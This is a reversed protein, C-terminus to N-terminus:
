DPRPPLAWVADGGVGYFRRGPAAQVHWGGTFEGFAPLIAQQGEHVFCPLRVSDRGKGHLSCAPHMHGALVFHTPHQQPHHCCAFPGMLHPEDVIAIRLSAPPDGARSDHNGRVLTFAMAAHRARWADLAALLSPTRAQAAHLFDGLFVVAEAGQGLILGDLRALNELTTGGPVPQGLARFTAAKGLHLDAIFLTRAAPWWLARQPLLHLREGAWDVECVPARSSTTTSM